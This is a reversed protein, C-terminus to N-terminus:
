EAVELSIDNAKKILADLITRVLPAPYTNIDTGYGFKQNANALLRKAFDDIIPNNLAVIKAYKALYGAKEKEREETLDVGEELWKYLIEGADTGLAQPISDFMGSNDKVATAVHNMDLMFSVQMEFEIDDKQIPKVGLKTVKMKGTETTETAYEQKTRITSIIHVDKETLTRYFDTVLPKVTRWDQYRGGLKQQVELIGGDGEWAHSLSDIIIVEVGIDKMAEVAYRYRETSFPAPFDIHKFQGIYEDARTTNAYLLSRNHEVDVVGIKSWFKTGKDDLKPYKAKIIGKAILLGTLTKGAGSAGMLAISAKLKERKADKIETAFPNVVM